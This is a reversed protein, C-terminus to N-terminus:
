VLASRRFGMNAGAGYYREADRDMRHSDPEVIYPQPDVAGAQEPPLGIWGSVFANKPEALALSLADRWGDHVRVDDDIFAVLENSAARWGANRARSVGPLEVRVYRAGHASAVGAADANASASDVVVVEDNGRGGALLRALCRDLLDARNRTAIVITLPPRQPNTTM